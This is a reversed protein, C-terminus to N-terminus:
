YDNENNSQRIRLLLSIACFGAARLTATGPQSYGNQRGAGTGPAWGSFAPQCARAPSAPDRRYRPQRGSIAPLAPCQASPAPAGARRGKNGYSEFCDQWSTKLLLEHNTHRLFVLFALRPGITQAGICLIKGRLGACDPLLFPNVCVLPDLVGSISHGSAVM